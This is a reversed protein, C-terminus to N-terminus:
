MSENSSRIYRAQAAYRPAFFATFAKVEPRRFAQPSILLMTVYSTSDPLDCCRILEDKGDGLATAIPGIGIGSHIATLISPWDTCMMATQNPQIQTHFWEVLQRPMQDGGPVVFLHDQLDQVSAPIGHKRRYSRSAYLAFEGVSLKRCILKDEEIKQNHRIAVDAEGAMLDLMQDSAIFELRIDPNEAIFEAVITEFVDAFNLAAATIRIPVRSSRQKRAQEAFADANAEIDEAIAVLARAETTPRFGRTDKEFLSLQLARELADIRRAVTPQAM